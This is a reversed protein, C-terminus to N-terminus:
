QRDEKGAFTLKTSSKLLWLTKRARSCAVFKMRKKSFINEPKTLKFDLVVNDFEKGKITHINELFVRKYAIPVVQVGQDGRYFEGTITNMIDGIQLGAIFAGDNEDVEKNTKQAIKIQPIILDEPTVNELGAGADEAMQANLSVIENTTTKDEM